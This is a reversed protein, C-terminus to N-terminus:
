QILLGSCSNRSAGTVSKLINDQKNIRLWGLFGFILAEKFEIIERTPIIIKQQVKEQLVEMLFTNYVGGGSVLVKGSDLNVLVHAIQAAMHEVLTRLKDDTGLASNHLLPKFHSHYWEIGLSKPASEAYFPLANLNNLLENNVTGKKAIGGKDDYPLNIENTVESLAMNIPCIDFALREQGQQFSINAIGGFNICAVYENFLHLDGIPVLPAGQGGLAVDLTRFDYIVPIGTEALLTTGDGIQLTLGKAPQHFVTHGHSAIYDPKIDSNKLFRNTLQGFYQGVEINLLSLAEGSLQTASKLKEQWSQSYPVSDAKLIQYVYSNNILEFRALCLDLGDISTGSMLGLITAAKM